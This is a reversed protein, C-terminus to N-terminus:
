GLYESYDLPKRFVYVQREVAGSQTEATLAIRESRRSLPSLTAKFCQGFCALPHNAFL